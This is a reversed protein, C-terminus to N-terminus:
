TATDTWVRSYPGIHDITDGVWTSGDVLMFTLSGQLYDGPMVIEGVLRLRYTAPLSDRRNPLDTRPYPVFTACALGLHRCWEHSPYHEFRIEQCTQCRELWSAQDASIIRLPM